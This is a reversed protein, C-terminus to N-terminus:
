PGVDGVRRRLEVVTAELERVKERLVRRDHSVTSLADLARRGLAQEEAVKGLLWAIEPREGHEDRIGDLTYGLRWGTM